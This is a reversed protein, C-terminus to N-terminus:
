EDTRLCPDVSEEVFKKMRKLRDAHGGRDTERLREVYGLLRDDDPGKPNFPRRTHRTSTPGLATRTV